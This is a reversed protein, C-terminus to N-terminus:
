VTYILGNSTSSEVFHNIYIICLERYSLDIMARQKHLHFILDSARDIVRGGREGISPDGQPFIFSPLKDRSGLVNQMLEHM